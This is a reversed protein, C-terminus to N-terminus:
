LSAAALDRAIPLDDEETSSWVFRGAGPHRQLQALKPNAADTWQEAAKVLPLLEPERQDLDGHLQWGADGATTHRRFAPSLGTAGIERVQGSSASPDATAHTERGM